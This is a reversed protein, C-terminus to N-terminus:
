GIDAGGAPAETEWIGTEAGLAAGLGGPRWAKGGAAEKAGAPCGPGRRASWGVAPVTSILNGIDNASQSRSWKYKGAGNRDRSITTCAEEM